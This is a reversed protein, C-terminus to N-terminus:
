RSGEAKLLARKREVGWHYGGLGGNQQVVRHCPVLLAVPNAACAQAVARAATPRGVRRAVDQYSRTQGRPIQQLEQWVLRQFATARVDIPLRPDPAGPEVSRLIATVWERFRNDGRAITAQPYEARLEDELVRPRDGLKVACVGRPTAAVLLHGLPSDHIVYQVSAGKGGAAYTAPTMGLTASGREYIRSGSGYGAEYTADAVRQGSQLHSKLLGVRCAAAYDRPSVGLTRKFLRQLHYPSAGVAQALATLRIGSAARSTLLACARRVQDLNAPLVGITTPQCRRCARFGASEAASPVAFFRVGTRRPRRSPCTPRCYIRTSPVAYVFVGDWRPDRAQVAEWLRDESLV